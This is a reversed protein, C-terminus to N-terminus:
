GLVLVAGLAAVLIGGRTVLRRRDMGGEGRPAAAGLPADQRRLLALAGGLVVAFAASAAGLVSMVQVLAGGSIEDPTQNGVFFLMFAASLGFIVLGTSIARTWMPRRAGATRRAYARGVLAGGLVLLAILGVLLLTKAQSGFIELMLSFIGMPMVLLLADALSDILSVIGTFSRLVILVVLMAVAALAGAVM